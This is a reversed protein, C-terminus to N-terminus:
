SAAEILRADEDCAADALATAEDLSLSGLLAGITVSEQMALDGVHASIMQRVVDLALEPVLGVEEAAASRREVIRALYLAARSVEYAWVTVSKGRGMKWSSEDEIAEDQWVKVWAKVGGSQRRARERLVQLSGADVPGGLDPRRRLPVVPAEPAEPVVVPVTPDTFPLQFAREVADMQDATWESALKPGRVGALERQWVAMLVDKDGPLAEVIAARRRDLLEDTAVEDVVAGPFAAEVVEASPAEVPLELDSLLDKRSRWRHAFVAHPLAEAGAALDIWHVKAPGGKAPLHIIM